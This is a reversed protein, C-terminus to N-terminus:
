PGAAADALQPLFFVVLPICYAAKNQPPFGAEAM